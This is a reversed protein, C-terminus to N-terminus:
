PIALLFLYNHVNVIWFFLQGECLSFIVYEPGPILQILQLNM